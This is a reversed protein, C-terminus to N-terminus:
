LHLPESTNAVQAEIANVVFLIVIAVLMCIAAAMRLWGSEVCNSNSLMGNVFFLTSTAIFLIFAVITLKLGSSNRGEKDAHQIAGVVGVIGVVAGVAYIVSAVQFMRPGLDTAQKGLVKAPRCMNVPPTIPISMMVPKHTVPDIVPAHTVPHIVPISTTCNGSTENYVLKMFEPKHTTQNIVPAMVPKHTVPDIIPKHTTQNIVPAEAPIPIDCTPACVGAYQPLLVACGFLLVAAGLVQCVPGILRMLASSGVHSRIETRHTKTRQLGKLPEDGQEVDLSVTRSARCHVFLLDIIAAVMVFGVGVILLNMGKVYKDYDFVPVVIHNTPVTYTGTPIIWLFGPQLLVGGVLYILGITIKLLTLTDMRTRKHEGM